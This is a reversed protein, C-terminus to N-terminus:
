TKFSEKVPEFHQVTITALTEGELPQQSCVRFVSQYESLTLSSLFSFLCGTFGRISGHALSLEFLIVIRLFGSSCFM